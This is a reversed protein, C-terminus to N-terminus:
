IVLYEGGFRASKTIKAPLTRVQRWQIAFYDSGSSASKTTQAPLAGSFQWSIVVPAQQNTSSTHAIPVVPDGVLGVRKIQSLITIKLEPHRAKGRWIM